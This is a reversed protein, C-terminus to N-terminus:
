EELIEFFYDMPDDEFTLDIKIHKYELTCSVNPSSKLLICKVNQPIMADIVSNDDSISVDLGYEQDILDDIDLERGTSNDYCHTHSNLDKRFIILPQTTRVNLRGNESNRLKDELFM